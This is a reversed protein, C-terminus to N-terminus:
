RDSSGTIAGVGLVLCYRLFCCPPSLPFVDKTLRCTVCTTGTTSKSTADARPPLIVVTAVVSGQRLTIQLRSGDGNLDPLAALLNQAFVGTDRQAFWYMVM